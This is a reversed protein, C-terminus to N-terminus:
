GDDEQIHEEPLEDEDALWPDDPDNDDEDYFRSETDGDSDGDSDVPEDEEEAWGDGAEEDDLALIEEATRPRRFSM